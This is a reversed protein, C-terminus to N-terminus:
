LTSRPLAALASQLNAATVPKILHLDFGAELAQARDQERGYGTLAILYVGSLQPDQRVQRALEYGTIGPMGVDVIMADPLQATSERLATSGDYVAKARHGCIELLFVVSDAIDPQDDVVLVQLQTAPAAPAPRKQPRPLSESPLGMPLHVIFESGKGHGESLAEVRGGHLAVLQKVLALGIGLGSNSRDLSADGQVFLEFVKPLLEQEMGVGTDRVRSVAEEGERLVSVNISGDRPTFKVANNLLNVIVQEIRTADGLMWLPEASTQLQLQLENRLALDRSSEVARTAIRELMLPEKTLQIKGLTVRSVDLLDDVMRALAKTQRQVVTTLKQALADHITRNLVESANMIAAVPNRLEHALMGLFEDKRRDAERLQAEIRRRESIDRAIVTFFRKGHVVVESVSVDLPITKGTTSVGDVEVRCQLGTSDALAGPDLQLDPMFRPLKQNMADAATCEFLEGAARNFLVIRLQEDCMAIADMTAGIISAFRLESELLKGEARVQSIVREVAAPLYDLYDGSKPVFDRVGARLSRIAAEQDAFATVVIAPVNVGRAKLDEYVDLGSVDGALRLDLLVISVRGKVAAELAEAGTAAVVVEYGARELRRRQLTAVGPDDEVILVCGSSREKAASWGSTVAVQGLVGRVAGPLYDLYETDKVVVDRVGARIAEIISTDDMAGSVVIVPVDFGAAKMRRHFDLGSTSGLRYDMVVLNVGGRRLIRTAAEIEATVEVRFGAQELRRRQLIAAEADDEVVLILSRQDPAM